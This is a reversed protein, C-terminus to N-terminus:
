IATDKQSPSDHLPCPPSDCLSRSHLASNNKVTITLIVKTFVPPPALVAFMCSLVVFILDYLLQILRFNPLFAFMEWRCPNLSLFVLVAGKEHLYGAKYEGTNKSLTNTCPFTQYLKGIYESMSQICIFSHCIWICTFTGIAVVSWLTVSRSVGPITVSRLNLFGALLQVFTQLWEEMCGNLM